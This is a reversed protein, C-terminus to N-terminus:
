NRVPRTTAVVKGSRRYASECDDILRDLFGIGPVLDGQTQHRAILSLGLAELARLGRADNAQAFEAGQRQLLALLADYTPGDARKKLDAWSKAKAEKALRHAYAGIQRRLKPERAEGGNLASMLAILKDRFVLDRETM